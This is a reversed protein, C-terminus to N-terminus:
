HQPFRILKTSLFQNVEDKIHRTLYDLVVCAQPSLYNENHTLYLTRSVGSISIPIYSLQHLFENKLCANAPLICAGQGNICMQLQLAISDVEFAPVLQYGENSCVQEILTRMSGRETQFILPFKSLAAASKIKDIGELRDKSAVLMLHESFVEVSTLSSTAPPIQVFALDIVKQHLLDVLGAGRSETVKIRIQPHTKFCANIGSYIARVLLTGPFAPLVGINVDGRIEANLAQLQLRLRRFNEILPNCEVYVRQGDDTPRVGNTERVFLDVCLIEEMEKIIKSVYPPSVKLKDAARAM